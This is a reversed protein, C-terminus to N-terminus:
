FAGSELDALLAAANPETMEIGTNQKIEARFDEVTIGETQGIAAEIIYARGERYLEDATLEDTLADKAEEYGLRNLEEIDRRSFYWELREVFEEYTM